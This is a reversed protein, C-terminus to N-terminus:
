ANKVGYLYATSYQAFVGNGSVLSLSTIASTNSWLVANMQAYTTTGNLEDVTETSISKYTSGSYNPIYIQANGFTSATATAAPTQGLYGSSGSGSTPTGSGAGQLYRYTFGSSSGNLELNLSATIAAGTQRASTVILLDTYTQPITGGSGFTISSAGLLGVEYAYILEYTSAM